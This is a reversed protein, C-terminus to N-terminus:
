KKVVGCTQKSDRYIRTYYLSPSSPPSLNVSQEKIKLNKIWSPQSISEHVSIEKQIYIYYYVYIENHFIM